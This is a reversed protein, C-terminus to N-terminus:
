ENEGIFLPEGDHIGGEIIGDIVRANSISSNTITVPEVKAELLEPDEFIYAFIAPFLDQLVTIDDYQEFDQTPWKIALFTGFRDQIDLRSIESIDYADMTVSATGTGVCNKTLYPGHDGAIIIIAGPDNKLLNEVDTKMMLNAEQLRKDYIKIDADNPACAGSNQSHGPKLVHTYIFKPHETNESFVNSKQEAFTGRPDEGINVDFIFEGILISKMLDHAPSSSKDPVSYDYGSTYGRFCFPYPFIGYTKYGYKKLLNPVIGDGACGKQIHGYLDTSANLVRSMTEFSSGGLSYTHPYIQFGLEELYQEQAQNDIGHSLMTENPVYADYILLYISPNRKPERASVLTLLKNDTEKAVTEPAKRTNELVATISTSLFMIVVLTHFIKQKNIYFLFWGLFFVGAFVLLQIKLSGKEHWTFQHSLSGMNIILFTFALGLLMLVQGSGTKKFLAPIFLVFFAIFVVTTLFLYIADGFPLIERNNLIYQMVPTLPLLLLTLDSFVFKEEVKKIFLFKDKKIGLISFFILSLASAIWVMYSGSRIVFSKNVGEPLFLSFFYFYGTLIWSPIFIHAFFFEVKGEIMILSEILKKINTLM